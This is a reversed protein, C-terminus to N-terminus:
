TMPKWSPTSSRPPAAWWIPYGILVADYQGMDEVANAIAPRAGPDNQEANARCDTNYNLDAPPTPSPPYSRLSTAAASRRAIRDVMEISIYWKEEAPEMAIM